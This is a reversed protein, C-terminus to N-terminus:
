EAVSVIALAQLNVSGFYHFAANVTTSAGGVGGKWTVVAETDVEIGILTGTISDGNALTATVREGVWDRTLYQAQIAGLTTM